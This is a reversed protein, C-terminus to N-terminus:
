FNLKQFNAVTRSKLSCKSIVKPLIKLTRINLTNSTKPLSGYVQYYIYVHFIINYETLFIDTSTRNAFLHPLHNTYLYAMM